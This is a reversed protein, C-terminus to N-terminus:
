SAVLFVTCYDTCIDVTCDLTTQNLVTYRTAKCVIPEQIMADTSEILLSSRFVGVSWIFHYVKLVELMCWRIRRHFRQPGFIVDM